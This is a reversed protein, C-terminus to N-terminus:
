LHKSMRIIFDDSLQQNAPILIGSNKFEEFLSDFAERDKTVIDNWGSSVQYEQLFDEFSSSQRIAM